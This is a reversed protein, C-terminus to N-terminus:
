SKTPMVKAFGDPLAQFSESMKTSAFQAASKARAVGVERQERLYDASVRYAEALSKASALKDIAALSAEADQHAADVIKRNIDAMASVASLLAAEIAGTVKDAGV